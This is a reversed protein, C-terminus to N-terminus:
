SAVDVETGLRSSDETSQAEILASVAAMVKASEENENDESGLGINTASDTGLAFSSSDNEENTEIVNIFSTNNDANLFSSNEENEFVSNLGAGINGETTSTTSGNEED